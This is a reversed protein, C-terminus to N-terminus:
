PSPNILPVSDEAKPRFIPKITSTVAKKIREQLNKRSIRERYEENQKYDKLMKKLSLASNNSTLRNILNINEMNIRAAELKKYRNPCTKSPSVSSFLLPSSKRESIFLLRDYLIKNERNIKQSRESETKRITSFTELSTNLGKPERSMINKLKAKHIKQSFQHNWESIFNQQIM